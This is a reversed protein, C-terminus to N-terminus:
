KDDRFRVLQPFRVAYETAGDALSLEQGEVVAMLGVFKAQNNWVYARFFQDKNLADFAADLAKGTLTPNEEAFWVKIDDLLEKGAVKFGGCNTVIKNGNEDTGVMHFGGLKDKNKTNADGIYFGTVTLDVDLVPKWKFWFTSRDWEYVGYFNKVILGEGLGNLTGDANQGDKLVEAYFAVLEAINHCVKSKSKVIKRLDLIETFQLVMDSRRHQPATESQAHWQHLPMWDFAYFKLHKKAEDNDSGKAKATEYFSRGLVEGDLVFSHGLYQEIKLLEDDFLGNCWDAENGQRTRYEVKGNQVVALLRKGDYKTEAIVPFKLGYKKELIAPTLAVDGKRVAQPKETIKEALMLEFSPFDVGPYLKKFTSATAGCRLDKLLVRTLATATRQTYLGLTATVAAKAANGSITRADLADLLKFFATYDPDVSAFAQPADFKKINFVRYPSVAEQVLKVDDGTLGSLAAHKPAHKSHKEAEFIADAFTKAM